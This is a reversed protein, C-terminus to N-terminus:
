YNRSVANKIEELVKMMSAHQADFYLVQNSFNHYPGILDGPEISPEVVAQIGGIKQFEANWKDAFQHPVHDPIKEIIEKAYYRHYELSKEYVIMGNKLDSVEHIHAYASLAYQQILIYDSLLIYPSNRYLSIAEIEKFMLNRFECIEDYAFSSFVMSTSNKYEPHSEWLDFAHKKYNDVKQIHSFLGEYVIKVNRDFIQDAKTKRIISVIVGSVVGGVVSIILAFPWAEFAVNMFDM